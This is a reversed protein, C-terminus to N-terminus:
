IEGPGGSQRHVLPPGPFALSGQLEVLISDKLAKIVAPLEYNDNDEPATYIRHPEAITQHRLLYNEPNVDRRPQLNLLGLVGALILVLSWWELILFVSVLSAYDPETALLFYSVPAFLGGLLITLSGAKRHKGLQWAGTLGLLLAPLASQVLLIPEVFLPFLVLLILLGLLASFGVLAAPSGRM